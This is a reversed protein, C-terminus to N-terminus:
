QRSPVILMVIVYHGRAPRCRRSRDLRPRGAPRQQLRARLLVRSFRMLSPEAVREGLRHTLVEKRGTRRDRRGAAHQKFM